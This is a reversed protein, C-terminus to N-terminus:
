LKARGSKEESNSQKLTRACMDPIGHRAFQMKMKRIVHSATTNELADVEWFGSFYDAIILYDTKSFKFLNVEVKAWPRNPVNHPILTKKQQQNDFPRCINCHLIFDKVESSMAPWYVCERARRLCGDIGIHAAHIHKLM